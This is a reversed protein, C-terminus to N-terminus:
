LELRKELDICKKLLEKHITLLKQYEDMLINYKREWESARGANYNSESNLWFPYQNM